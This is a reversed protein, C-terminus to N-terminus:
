MRLAASKRRKKVRVVPQDGLRKIEDADAPREEALGDTAVLENRFFFPATTWVLVDRVWRGYGRGWKAACVRSTEAVSASQAM